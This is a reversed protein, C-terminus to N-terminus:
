VDNTTTIITPNFFIYSFSLKKGLIDLSVPFLNANCHKTTVSANNIPPIIM